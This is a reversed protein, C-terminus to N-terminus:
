TVLAHSIIPKFKMVSEVLLQYDCEKEPQHTRLFNYTQVYEGHEDLKVVFLMQEPVVIDVTDKLSFCDGTAPVPCLLIASVPRGEHYHEEQPPSYHLATSSMQTRLM